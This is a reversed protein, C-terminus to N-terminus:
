DEAEWIGGHFVDGSGGPDSSPVSSYLQRRAHGRTTVIQRWATIDNNGDNHVTPSRGINNPIDAPINYMGVFRKGDACVSMMWTMSVRRHNKFYNGFLAGAGEQGSIQIATRAVGSLLSEGPIEDLAIQGAAGVINTLVGGAYELDEDILTFTITRYFYHCEICHEGEPDSFGTFLADAASDTPRKWISDATGSLTTELNSQAAASYVNEVTANYPSAGQFRKNGSETEVVSGTSMDVRILYEKDFKFDLLRGFPADWPKRRANPGHSTNDEWIFQTQRSTGYRNGRIEMFASYSLGMPDVGGWMVHYAAYTNMGDPYLGGRLDRQLFRGLRSITVRTRNDVLETEDDHRLGQFGMQVGYASVSLPAYKEDKLMRQGYLTYEYREVVAGTGDVIAMVNFQVDQLAYLAQDCTDNTGPTTNNAVQALSDIYHGALNDWVHQQIVQDSGNRTEM